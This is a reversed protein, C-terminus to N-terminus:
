VNFVTLKVESHCNLHTGPVSLTTVILTISRMVFMTGCIAFFRKLIILRHKHFIIITMFIFMMVMIILECATFAWSILPLMDLILDPLPPYQTMDPVRNHSIAM